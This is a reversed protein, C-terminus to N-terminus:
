MSGPKHKDVEAVAISREELIHDRLYIGFIAWIDEVFIGRNFAETKVLNIEEASAMGPLDTKAISMSAAQIDYANSMLPCKADVKAALAALFRKFIAEANISSAIEKGLDTLAIPSSTRFTARPNTNDYILQVKTDLKIVTEHIAEMKDLRQDHTFFREKWKGLYYGLYYVGFVVAFLIGLLVFVSSNLQDILKSLLLEM